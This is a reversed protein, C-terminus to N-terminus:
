ERQQQGRDVLGERQEVRQDEAVHDVLVGGAVLVVRRRLEDAAHAHQQQRRHPHREHRAHGLVELVVEGVQDRLPQARLEVGVPDAMRQLQRVRHELVLPAALREALQLLDAAVDLAQDRDEDVQQERREDADHEHHDVRERHV